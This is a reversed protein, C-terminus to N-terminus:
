RTGEALQVVEEANKELFKHRATHELKMKAVADAIKLPLRAYDRIFDMMYVPTGLKVYDNALIRFAKEANRTEFWFDSALSYSRDEGSKGCKYFIGVKGKTPSIVIKGRDWLCSNVYTMGGYKMRREITATINCKKVALNLNYSIDNKAREEDDCKLAIDTEFYGNGLYSVLERSVRLIQPTVDAELAIIREQLTRSAEAIGTTESSIALANNGVGKIIERVSEESQVYKALGLPDDITM